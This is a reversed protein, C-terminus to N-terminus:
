EVENQLMNLTAMAEQHKGILLNHNALHQKLETDKQTYISLSQSLQVALEQVRNNCNEIAEPLPM